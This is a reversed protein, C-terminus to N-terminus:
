SNMAEALKALRGRVSGDIVTDGARVLAGGLLTKDVSASLTVERNLKASLAKALKNQLEGSLEFATTVEVDVSRERQAKHVEFLQQIQPLLTLRKNEGLTTIMNIAQEDLEDGCVDVFAKSKQEATLAPSSLVKIMGDHQAVAAALVLMQSWKQLDGSKDAIEFAAKAYPRALTTLEAM